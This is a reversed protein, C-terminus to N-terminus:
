EMKLETIVRRTIYEQKMGSFVDQNEYTVTMQKGAFNIKQLLLEAGPFYGLWYFEVLRGNDEKIVVEVIQTSFSVSALTGRIEGGTNEESVEGALKILSEPCVVAMKLGLKEGIRTMGPVDSYSIPGLMAEARARDKELFTIMCTGLAMQPNQAEGQEVKGDFCTCVFEAAEM